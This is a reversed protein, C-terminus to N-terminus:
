RDKKMIEEIKREEWERGLFGGLGFIALAHFALGVGWGLLPWVFWKYEFSSFFNIAFLM